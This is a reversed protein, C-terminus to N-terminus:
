ALSSLRLRLSTASGQGPLAAHAGGKCCANLTIQLFTPAQAEIQATRGVAKAAQSAMHQVAAVASRQRHLDHGLPRPLGIAAADVRSGPRAPELAQTREGTPQLLKLRAGLHRVASDETPWGPAKCRVDVGLALDGVQQGGCAAEPGLGAQVAPDELRQETQDSARAHANRLCHAQAVAINVQLTTQQRDTARLEGLRAVHRDMQTGHRRKALIAPRAIQSTGRLSLLCWEEDVSSPSMVALWKISTVDPPDELTQALFQAPDVAASM